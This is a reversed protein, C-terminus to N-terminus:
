GEMLYLPCTELDGIKGQIISSIQLTDLEIGKAKSYRDLFDLTLAWDVSNNFIIDALEEPNSPIHILPDSNLISRFM